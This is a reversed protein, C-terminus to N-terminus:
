LNLYAFCHMVSFMQSIRHFKATKLNSQKGEWGQPCRPSLKALIRKKKKRLKDEKRGNSVRSLIEWETFSFTYPLTGNSLLNCSLKANDAGKTAM